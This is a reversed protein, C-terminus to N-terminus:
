PIISSNRSYNLEIQKLILRLDGETFTVAKYVTVNGTRRDILAAQKSEGQEVTDFSNATRQNSVIKITPKM